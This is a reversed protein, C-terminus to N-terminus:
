VPEMLPIVGFDSFSMAELANTAPDFMTDTFDSFTLDTWLTNFDSFEVYQKAEIGIRGYSYNISDVRYKSNNADMIAGALFGFEQNGAEDVKDTGTSLKVSPGSLHQSSKTAASYLYSKNTLFPNYSFDKFEDGEDSGTAFTHISRKVLTGDGTIMLAPNLEDKTSFALQWPTDLDSNPGTLIMKIEFPNDTTEVKLGAGSNTVTSAPVRKGNKDCFCYFGNVNTSPTTGISAKDTFIAYLAPPTTIYQPQNLTNPSISINVNLIKEETKNFDISGARENPGYVQIIANNVYSTKGLVMNFSKTSNDIESSFSESQSNKLMFTKQAVPDIFIKNEKFYMEANVTACLLKLQIWVNENWGPYIVNVSNFYSNIQYDTTQLGGLQLYYAFVQTLTGRKDVARKVSNLPEFRSQAEISAVNNSISSGVVKGTFVGRTSDTFEISNNIILKSTPHTAGLTEVNNSEGTISLTPISGSTDVTATPTASESLDYSIIVDSQNDTSFKGNGTISLKVSV